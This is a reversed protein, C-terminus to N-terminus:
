RDWLAYFQERTEPLSGLMAGGIVGVSLQRLLDSVNVSEGSVISREAEMGVVKKVKEVVGPVIDVM